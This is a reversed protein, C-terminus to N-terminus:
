FQKCKAWGLHHQYFIFITSLSTAYPHSVEGHVMKQARAQRTHANNNTYVWLWRWRHQGLAMGMVLGAQFLICTNYFYEKQQKFFRNFGVIHTSNLPVSALEICTMQLLFSLHENKSMFVNTFMHIVPVVYAVYMDLPWVCCTCWLSTYCFMIGFVLVCIMNNIPETM